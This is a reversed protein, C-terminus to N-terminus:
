TFLKWAAGGLVVGIAISWVVLTMAGPGPTLLLVVCSILSLAAGGIMSLGLGIANLLDRPM